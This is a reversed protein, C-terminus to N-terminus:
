PEAAEDSLQASFAEVHHEDNVAGTRHLQDDVVHLGLHRLQDMRDMAEHWDRADPHHHEAALALLHIDLREREIRLLQDVEEAANM